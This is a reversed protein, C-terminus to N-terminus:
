DLYNARQITRSDLTLEIPNSASYKSTQHTIYSPLAIERKKKHLM